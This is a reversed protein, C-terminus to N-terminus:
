VSFSDSDGPLEISLIRDLGALDQHSYVAATPYITCALAVAQAGQGSEIELLIIGGPKIKGISQVLLQRIKDLGDIGGDLALRPEQHAVELSDLKVNPIYPLNACLMDIPVKIPDLLDGKLVQIRWEVGHKRINRTAVQLAGESIDSAYIMLDPLSVALSIAICGSGTGIDAAVRRGPHQAFWKLATEVLLETEPRPILVEPTIYFDLGFFEWQGIVYPLPIGASIDELVKALHECEKRSLQTEPHTAIWARSRGMVHGLLTGADLRATGSRDAFLNAAKVLAEVLTMEPDSKNQM